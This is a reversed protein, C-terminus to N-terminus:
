GIQRGVMIRSLYSSREKINTTRIIDSFTCGISGLGLGLIIM